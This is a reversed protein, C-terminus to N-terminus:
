YKLVLYDRVAKELLKECNIKETKIIFDLDVPIRIRREVTKNESKYAKFVKDVIDERSEKRLTENFLSEMQIINSTKM